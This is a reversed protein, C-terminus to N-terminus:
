WIGKGPLLTYRNSDYICTEPEKGTDSDCIFGITLDYGAGTINQDRKNLIIIGENGEIIKQLDVDSLVAM